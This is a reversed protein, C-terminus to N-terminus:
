HGPKAPTQPKSAAPPKAGPPPAATPLPGADAGRVSIVGDWPLNSIVAKPGAADLTANQTALNVNIEIPSDTALTAECVLHLYFQGTFKQGQQKVCVQRGVVINMALISDPSTATALGVAEILYPGGVNAPVSCQLRATNVLHCPPLNPHTFGPLFRPASNPTATPATQAAAAGSFAALTFAALVIAVPRM